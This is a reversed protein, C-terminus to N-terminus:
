RSPSRHGAELAFPVARTGDQREALSIEYGNHLKIRKPQVKNHVVGCATSHDTQLPTPPPPHGMEELVNRIHAAKRGTIFLAGLETEAASSTVAKIIHAVNHISSNNPPVEATNSM